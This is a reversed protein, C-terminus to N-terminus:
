EDLTAFLNNLSEALTPHAFIAGRLAKLFGRSIAKLSIVQIEGDFVGAVVKRWACDSEGCHRESQLEGPDQLLVHEGEELGRLEETQSEAGLTILRGLEPDDDLSNFDAFLERM